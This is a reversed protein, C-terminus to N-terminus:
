ARIVFVSQPAHRVVRAANPGLLYDSLEPRHAALVIADCKLANAASIIEEYITGRSVHLEVEVGEFDCESAIESLRTKAVEVVKGEFDDPFFSGVLASGYPPVVAVLHLRAGNSRAIGVAQPVVPEWSSRQEVDVPVLISRFM